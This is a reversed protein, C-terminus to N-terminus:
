ARLARDVARVVAAPDDVGAFRFDFGAEAATDFDVTGVGLARDLLSQRYSVNQVREIRCEHLERSLLGVQVRLRESTVTYTLRRRRLAGLGVAIAFVLVVAVLVWGVQVSGDLIASILGAVVGALVAAGLGRVHFPLM